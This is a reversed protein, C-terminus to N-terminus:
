LGNEKPVGNRELKMCLSSLLAAIEKHIMNLPLVTVGFVRLYIRWILLSWLALGGDGFDGQKFIIVPWLKYGYSERLGCFSIENVCM